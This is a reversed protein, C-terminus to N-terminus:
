KLLALVEAAYETFDTSAPVLYYEDCKIMIERGSAAAQQLGTDFKYEAKGSLIFDYLDDYYKQLDNPDYKIIGNTVVESNEGEAFWSFADEVLSSWAYNFKGIPFIMYLNGYDYAIRRSGTVFIAESRYYIGSLFKFSDNLITHIEESTDKPIRNKRVKLKTLGYIKKTTGRYLPLKDGIEKLFPSCDRKIIEAAQAASIKKEEDEYLYQKFTIMM